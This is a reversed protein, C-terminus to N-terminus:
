DAVKLAAAFTPFFVVHQDAPIASALPDLKPKVDKIHPQWDFEKVTIGVISDLPVPKGADTNGRPFVLERDLQWNECVAGGGSFLEFTGCLGEPASRACG